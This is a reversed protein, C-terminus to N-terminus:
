NLFCTDFDINLRPVTVVTAGSLYAPVGQTPSKACPKKCLYARVARCLSAKASRKVCVICM